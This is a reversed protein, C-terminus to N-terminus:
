RIKVGLNRDLNKLIKKIYGDATDPTIPENDPMFTISYAMSKKGAEIQSGTYVDFLRIDTVFKCSALINKEIEACTLSSDCVLALDRQVEPYQSLPRYKFSRSNKVLDTYIIECVILKRDISLESTITPSIEGIYGIADDQGTVYIEASIGPHLFPKQAAKFELEMNLSKALGEVVGKLDFFDYQGFLCMSIRKQEEPFDSLPLSNPLFAKAIEFLKGEMNGHRLNRVACNVISPVLTTRLVSMDEGIPNLIKIFNREPADSPIHLMDLDKESYFSYTCIESMGLSVLTNKISLEQRQDASYGGNTVKASPMFTSTIKDYGYERIIEEAIDAYTDIDERWMPIHLLLEDGKEEVTFYLRNLIEVIDKHPIEIGLLACIKKEDVLLTREDLHSYETIIDAKVNTVTGCNLEEILHLARKLAMKTTYEYVGKEFAQSSDSHQGLSRSTRRVAQRAFKAAEFLLEKTDDKIESNLGGMIGALACPKDGDCIVLDETSLAFKKGDLTVIEEGKKARRAKIECKSISSLDFAHMPQGMELLVFNTIDVANNISRLGCLSLRKRMWLPSPAIKLDKVYHAMYRPCLDADEVSVKIVKDDPHETYDLAPQKLPKGLASAIERSLGFISQCDPRNATIAVDFIYDDLGVIPKVDEGPICNEPLILLGNYDAGEFMDGNVGIEVGSCLMGFSEYGKLKGKKITAIGEVTTHDPGTAYVTAGILATPVKVGVKVNDAGCCIQFTGLDGCNVDCLHLHTGEIEDCKIVEGVVVGSIDRGLSYMDEVEFGCGFLKDILEEPSCDIDVYDKLWSLPAKM